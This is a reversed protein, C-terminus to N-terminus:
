KVVMKSPLAARIVEIYKQFEKKESIFSFTYKKSSTLMKISGGQGFFGFAMKVEVREIESYPVEYNKRDAQLISEFDKRTLDAVVKRKDKEASKLGVLGGPANFLGLGVM